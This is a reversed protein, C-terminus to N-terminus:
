KGATEKEAVAREALQASVHANISEELQALSTFDRYIDCYLMEIKQGIEATPMACGYPSYLTYRPEGEAASTRRILAFIYETEAALTPSERKVEYGRCVGGLTCIQLIDGEALADLADDQKYIANIKVTYPTRVSLLLETAIRGNTKAYESYRDFEDATHRGIVIGEEQSLVTARFIVPATYVMNKVTEFSGYDSMISTSYLIEQTTEAVTTSPPTQPIVDSEDHIDLTACSCLVLILTLALIVIQLHKM